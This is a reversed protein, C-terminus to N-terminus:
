NPKIKPPEHELDRLPVVHRTFAEPKPRGVPLEPDRKTTYLDQIAHTIEVSAGKITKTRKEFTILGINSSFLIQRCNNLHSLQQFHRGAARSYGDMDPATIDKDKKSNDDPWLSTARAMKPRDPEERIDLIPAVRWSWDPTSSTAGRWGITPILVPSKNLMGRLRPSVLSDAPVQVPVPSNSDWGLREAGVEARIMKQALAFSRDVMQIVDPMVNKLGSSIFQVIRAPEPDGKRWYSMANTASYHVDGSLVVVPTYAKLRKLLAELLIPDFCWAEIADPDTGPTRRTGRNKQLADVGKADFVKFLLPAFLEDFIPPGLVPLSSILFWVEKGTPAPVDPIQEKQADSGINGPPSIRSAFSRRTRCDLVITQHKTGPVTYSWKLKPATEVYRGDAAQQNRLTFGLLDEIKSVANGATTIDPATAAGAPFFQTALELLQEHPQKTTNGPRPEYKVPDNGWGQFLAYALMGNRIVASGLPSGMVRDRWTQTLYWDDTIEHDDFMM